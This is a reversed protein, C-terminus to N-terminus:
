ASKIAHIHAFDPHRLAEDLKQIVSLKETISVGHDKWAPDRFQKVVARKLDALINYEDVRSVYQTYNFDGPCHGHEEFMEAGKPSNQDYVDIPESWVAWEQPYGCVVARHGRDLRLTANCYNDIDDNIEDGLTISISVSTEGKLIVSMTSAKVFANSM